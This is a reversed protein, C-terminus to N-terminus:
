RRRPVDNHHRLVRHPRLRHDGDRLRAQDRMQEVLEVPIVAGGTVALRLSSLAALDLDPHNLFTQYITPPGPLMTIRHEAVMAMTTPIDFVAQPVITAGKSLAAVIGAKYGFAHFFPNVVLYRDGARLGVVTAWDTFGRLAQRHTSLVGKPNGTTGSTFLIDSVDDPDVAAVRAELVAPDVADGGALFDAWSQTGEPVDGRLIVTRELYPLDHGELMGVYDNGLFGQVTVLVRARSTRLLYAAETGKYRSNM